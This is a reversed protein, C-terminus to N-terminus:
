YLFHQDMSFQIAPMVMLQQMSFPVVFYLVLFIPSCSFTRDVFLHAIAVVLPLPVPEFQQLHLPRMIDWLITM